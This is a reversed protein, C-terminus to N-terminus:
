LLLVESTATHYAHHGSELEPCLFIMGLAFVLAVLTPVSLLSRLVGATGVWLM